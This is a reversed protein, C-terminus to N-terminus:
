KKGPNTGILSSEMTYTPRNEDLTLMLVSGCAACLLALGTDFVLYFLAFVGSFPLFLFTKIKETLPM